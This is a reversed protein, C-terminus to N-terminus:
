LREYLKMYERASRDWSFDCALANKRLAPWLSKDKRVALARKVAEVLEGPSPDRFKFGNGKKSVPDFEEITDELGGTARVVPITGYKLAYMQTLGCPEYRSPILLFDSGAYIKHALAENYSLCLGLRAPHRGVATSLSKEIAEDGTGLIVLVIGAHLLDDLAEVLIDLGKQSALRTVMGAVPVSKVRLGMAGLLDQRCLSKGRLDGPGYRAALHPDTQPDWAAYDVGNLVGSLVASRSRLLGDLGCGFEETQIEQSYRVSVTNVADSYLIGAKLFNVRGYFELDEMRFLSAPLGVRELIEQGFLGQYGLNHITFLAKTGAFFPDAGYRFRKYALVLASQWDHAHIVDPRYALGKMAELCARSFFGFREGNDPFDGASTGYLEDRDFFEPKDIFLVSLGDRRSEWVAFSERRGSWDMEVSPLVPRIGFEPSRTRVARYYPLFVKVGAGLGALYKPLAGAVDALGGTKAFPAVESSILSINM